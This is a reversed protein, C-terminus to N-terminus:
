RPLSDSAARIREILRDARDLPLSGNLLSQFVRNLARLIAHRDALPGLRITPAHAPRMLARHRRRDRLKFDWHYHCRPKGPSVLSRCPTGDAKIASCLKYKM